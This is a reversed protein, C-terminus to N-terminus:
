TSTPNRDKIISSVMSSAKSASVNGGLKLERAVSEGEEKYTKLANSLPVLKSTDLKLRLITGHHCLGFHTKIGGELLLGSEGSSIFFSGGNGCLKSTMYLGYGSNEWFDYPNSRKGRYMRGSIGPLLSHQLADKDCNIILNRNRRLSQSVGIGSDMIAVEAEDRSPWYQACFGVREDESHELANRIIERFCYSLTEVLPGESSRALLRSMENARKDIVDQEVIGERYSDHRIEEFNLFQIGLYRASGSAEGPDKGYGLGFAKYFGMHAAYNNSQHNIAEFRAEGRENRYKRLYNCLYLLGFPPVWNMYQFDIVYHTSVPLNEMERTFAILNPIELSNPVSIEVTM